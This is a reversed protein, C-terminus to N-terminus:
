KLSNKWFLVVKGLIVGATAGASKVIFDSLEGHRDPTLRQMLEFLGSVAILLILVKLWHKPYALSFLLGIVLLMAFREGNVFGPIHPRFGIPSITVALLAALMLWALIQFVSVFRM